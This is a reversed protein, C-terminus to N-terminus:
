QNPYIYNTLGITYLPEQGNFAIINRGGNLVDIGYIAEIWWWLVIRVGIGVVRSPLAMRVKEILVGVRLRLTRHLWKPDLISAEIVWRRL